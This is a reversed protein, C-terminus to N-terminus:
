PQTPSSRVRGDTVTVVFLHQSSARIPRITISDVLERPYLRPFDHDWDWHVPHGSLRHQLWHRSRALWPARARPMYPDVHVLATRALGAAKALVARIDHPPFHLFVEGVFVLDFGEGLDASRFDAQRVEGSPFIDQLAKAAASVQGASIDLGLYRDAAPCAALLIPTLRGFGCGIELVSRVSSLDHGALAAAIEQEQERFVANTEDSHRAFEQTYQDGRQSWYAGEDFPV